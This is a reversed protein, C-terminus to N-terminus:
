LAQGPPGGTDWAEEDNLRDGITRQIAAGYIPWLRKLLSRGAPKIRVIQGRGAAPCSERRM